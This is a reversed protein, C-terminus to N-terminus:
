KRRRISTLDKELQEKLEELSPFPREERIRELFSLYISEEYCDGNFGDLYAEVTVEKLLGITPAKGVNVLSLYPKGRLYSVGKYVGEKPLMYPSLLALNATPFGIKRGNQYGKKVKGLIEYDRGLYRNATAIEGEKLLAVIEKTGIKNGKEDLLIPSLVVPFHEKLLAIDGLAGKGFRYDEGVVLSAPKLRKLVREIFSLPELSFFSPSTELVLAMDVEYRSFLRLRDELSTLVKGEMEKKPFSPSLLLVASSGKEKALSILRQHGLHLGDFNGLLLNYGEISPINELTFTKREM